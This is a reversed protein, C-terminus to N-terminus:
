RNVYRIVDIIFRNNSSWMIALIITFYVRQDIVLSEPLKIPLLFCCSMFIAYDFTPYKESDALSDPYGFLVCTLWVGSFVSKLYFFYKIYVAPITSIRRRCVFCPEKVKKLTLFRTRMLEPFEYYNLLRRSKGPNRQDNGYSYTTYGRLVVPVRKVVFPVYNYWTM